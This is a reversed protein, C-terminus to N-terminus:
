LTSQTEPSHVRRFLTRIATEEDHRIKRTSFLPKCYYRVAWFGWSVENVGTTGRFLSLRVTTPREFTTVARRDRFTGFDLRSPEETGNEATDISDQATYISSSDVLM